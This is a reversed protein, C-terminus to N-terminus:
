LARDKEVLAELETVCGNFFDRLCGTSCFVLEFQGDEADDIVSMRTYVDPKAQDEIGHWTLAAFGIMRKDPCASKSTRRPKLLAGGSLCAFACDTTKRCMLCGKENRDIPLSLKPTDNMVNEKPQSPIVIAGLPM